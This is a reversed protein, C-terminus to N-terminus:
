SIMLRLHALDLWVVHLDVKSHKMSQIQEWIMASHEVCGSFRPVGVKQCSTNVYKNLLLYNTMRRALISFLIKGEVNLLTIDRFQNINKSDKEEPIFTTVAKCWSLSISQTKWAVVMLRWLIKLLGPCNKFMKYPVGNPGPASAARARGIVQKVESWRPHTIDFQSSPEPPLHVHGPSGLPTARLNDGLQDKIHQELEQQTTQLTGTNKLRGNSLTGSSAHGQERRHSRLKKIKEARRLHALRENIKNWLDKLGEKGQEEARRWAKRLLRREKVM